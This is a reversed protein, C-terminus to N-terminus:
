DDDTNQLYFLIIVVGILLWIFQITIEDTQNM